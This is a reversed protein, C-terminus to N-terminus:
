QQANEPPLPWAPAMLVAQARSVRLLVGLSGRGMSQLQQGEFCPPGSSGSVGRGGLGRRSVTMQKLPM